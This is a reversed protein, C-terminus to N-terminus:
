GGVKGLLRQEWSRQLEPYSLALAVPIAEESPLGDGLAALLRMIAAEGRERVIHAVASLSEAYALAADAESLSRFPGELSALALLRGQRSAAAAAADQRGPEGGELWQSIGEQLWTPCNGRTRSLIFSHALEHRLVRVLDASPREVGRVPIRIVGDNVAAAWEPAGAEQFAAETQLVVTVPEDPSFGLRRSYEGHAQTLIQLLETGLPENISGDYRLRFQPGRPAAAPTALPAPAPPPLERLKRQVEPDPRLELAQKYRAEAGARDGTAALADGLLVLARASRPELLLAKEATERSRVPDAMGMYAESLTLLAPSSRPDRALVARLLRAAEAANGAALRERARKLDPDANVEPAPTQEVSKVLSRPLGFTGGNKEYVVQTGEFRARDAEIVRGNNLTITDPAAAAAMGLLWAGAVITTTPAKV